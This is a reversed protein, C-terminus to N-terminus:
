KDLSYFLSELPTNVRPSRRPSRDRSRDCRTFMTYGLPHSTCTRFPLPVVHRPNISPQDGGHAQRRDEDDGDQDDDDHRRTAAPPWTVVPEVVFHLQLTTLLLVEVRQSRGAVAVVVPRIVRGVDAVRGSESAAMSKEQGYLRQEM